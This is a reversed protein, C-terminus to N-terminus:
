ADRVAGLDHQPQALAGVHQELPEPGADRFPEADPGLLAAGAVVREHVRAHGAPALVTRERPSTPWSM